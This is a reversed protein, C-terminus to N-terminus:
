YGLIPDVPNLLEEGCLFRPLNEHLFFDTAEHMFTATQDQLCFTFNIAHVTLLLRWIYDRLSCLGVGIM